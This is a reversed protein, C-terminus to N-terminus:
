SWLVLCPFLLVVIADRVLRGGRCTSIAVRVGGPAEGEYLCTPFPVTRNVSVAAGGDRVVLRYHPAVLGTSRRLRAVLPPPAPPPGEGGAASPAFPEPLETALRLRLEAAPPDPATPSRKRRCPPSGCDSSSTSSASFLKFTGFSKFSEPFFFFFFGIDKREDDSKM